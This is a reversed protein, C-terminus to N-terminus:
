AVGTSGFGGSGRETATDVSEVQKVKVSLVPQIVMQAIRDGVTLEANGVKVNKTNADPFFPAQGTTSGLIVCVEGRYGADVTGPSNVVVCGKLALGSRSRIQAEYGEPLAMKLGTHVLISFEKKEFSAARLDFGADSDNSKEPLSAGPHILEFAVEIPQPSEVGIESIPYESTENVM